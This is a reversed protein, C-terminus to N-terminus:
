GPEIVQNLRETQGDSQPHFATSLNRRINLYFCMVSWFKSTFVSGRDSIINAPLGYDKVWYKIFLTALEEATTTKLCPIYRAMKTYRNIIVLLSDYVIKTTQDTSSPLDTIFDMSISEFPKSLLPLPQIEGAKKHRTAKIRQYMDCGKVYERVDTGLTLWYYRRRVLTITKRQGFHGSLPDDHCIKMIEARVAMDPLVYARRQHRLLRDSTIEWKGTVGAAKEEEYKRAMEIALPDSKQLELLLPLLSNSTLTYATESVLVRSVLTRPVFYDHISQGADVSENANHWLPTGSEIELLEKNETAQDPSYPVTELAETSSFETPESESIHDYAIVPLLQTYLARISRGNDATSDGADSPECFLGLKDANRLKNQLTPLMETGKATALRYDPRRSPRNTPNLKGAQYKIEFDYASLEMAWRAQRRNITSTTMFHRLNNHDTLVEVLFQSGELYHRWHEFSQVIAILEQDPVGYNM